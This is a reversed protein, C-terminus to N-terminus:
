DIIISWDRDDLEKESYNYYKYIKKEIL